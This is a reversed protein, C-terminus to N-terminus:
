RGRGWIYEKMYSIIHAVPNCWIYKLFNNFLLDILIDGEKKEQFWQGNRISMYLKKNNPALDCAIDHAAEGGGIILVNKDKIEERRIGYNHSHIIKNPDIFNEYEKELPIFPVQHIGTCIIVKDFVEKIEKGGEIYFINWKKKEKIVKEVYTSLKIYESLEFNEIYNELHEYIM